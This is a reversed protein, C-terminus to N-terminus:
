IYITTWVSQMHHSYIYRPLTSSGQSFFSYFSLPLVLSVATSIYHVYLTALVLNTHSTTVQLIFHRHTHHFYKIGLIFTPYYRTVNLITRMCTYSFPGREGVRLSCEPCVTLTHIVRCMGLVFCFKRIRWFTWLRSSCECSRVCLAGCMVPTFYLKQLWAHSDSEWAQLILRCARNLARVDQTDSNWTTCNCAAFLESFNGDGNSGLLLTTSVNSSNLSQGPCLTASHTSWYLDMYSYVRTDVVM